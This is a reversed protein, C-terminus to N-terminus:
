RKITLGSPASPSSKTSSPNQKYKDWMQKEFCVGLPEISLFRETYAFTATDNWAAKLGMLEAALVQGVMNPWQAFRYPNGTRFRRDDKDPREWHQIGWEALGLDSQIYNAAEGNAHKMDIDAQTVFFTTVDEVFKNEAAAWAVLDSGGASGFAASALLLPFKNGVQHGGSGWFFLGQDLFAAVDLGVQLTQIMTKRKVDQPLDLNLWLAVRSWKAAIDRGYNSARAGSGVLGNEIAACNQFPRISSGDWNSHWDWFPLAPLHEDAEMYAQTFALPVTPLNKLCSWDIDSVNFRVTRNTGYPSPRFSGAPPPSSLFTFVVISKVYNNGAAPTDISRAVILSDGAQVAFPYNLSVDLGASYRVPNSPENNRPCFGQPGGPVPNIMAGGTYVSDIPVSPKDIGTVTVPGVIWPEGNAFQGVQHDGAFRVTVEYHNISNVAHLPVVCLGTFLLSVLVGRSLHSFITNM